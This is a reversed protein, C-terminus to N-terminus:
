YFSGIMNEIMELYNRIISLMTNQLVFASILLAHSSYHLRFKGWLTFARKNEISQFLACSDVHVQVAGPDLLKWADLQFDFTLVQRLLM